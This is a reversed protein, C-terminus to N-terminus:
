LGPNVNGHNRSSLLLEKGRPHSRKFRVGSDHVDTMELRQLDIYTLGGSTEGCLLPPAKFFFLVPLNGLFFLFSCFPEEDRIRQSAVHYKRGMGQMFPQTTESKSVM